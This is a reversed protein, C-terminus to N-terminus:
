RYVHLNQHVVDVFVLLSHASHHQEGEVLLILVEGYATQFALVDFVHDLGNAVVTQVKVKAALLAEVGYAHNYRAGEIQESRLLIEHETRHQAIVNACLALPITLTLVFAVTM